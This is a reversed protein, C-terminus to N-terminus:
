YLPWVLSGGSFCGWGGDVWYWGKHRSDVQNLVTLASASDTSPTLIDGLTVQFELSSLKFFLKNAFDDWKNLKTQVVFVAEWRYTDLLTALMAAMQSFSPFVSASQEFSATPLFVNLAVYAKQYLEALPLFSAHVDYSALALVAQITDNSLLPDLNAIVEKTGCYPYTLASVRLPSATSDTANVTVYFATIASEISTRAKALFQEDCSEAVLIGLNLDLQATTAQPSLTLTSSMFVLIFFLFAAPSSKWTKRLWQPNKQKLDCSGCQFSSINPKSQDKRRIVDLWQDPWVEDQDTSFLSQVTGNAEFDPRHQNIAGSEFLFYQCPCPPSRRGNREASRWIVRRQLVARWSESHDPQRSNGFRESRPTRTLPDPLAGYLRSTASKQVDARCLDVPPCPDVM